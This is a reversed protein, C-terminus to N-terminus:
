NYYFSILFNSFSLMFKFKNVSSFLEFVILYYKMIESFVKCVYLLM